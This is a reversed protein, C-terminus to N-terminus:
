PPPAPAPSPRAPARARSTSSTRNITIGRVREEPAGDIQDFGLSRGSHLAAMVQTIASTLTTRGHDVHGIRGVNCHVTQM